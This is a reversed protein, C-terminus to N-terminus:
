INNKREKARACNTHANYKNLLKTERGFPNFKSATENKKKLVSLQRFIFKPGINTKTKYKTKYGRSLINHQQKKNKIM